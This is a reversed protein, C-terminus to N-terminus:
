IRRGAPSPLKRGHCARGLVEECGEGDARRRGRALDRGPRAARDVEEVGAVLLHGGLHGVHDARDVHQEAVELVGDLRLVLLLGPLAEDVDALCCVEALGLEPGADVGEVARPHEVVQRRQHGRDAVLEVHDHHRLHLAGLVDVVDVPQEGLELRLGTEVPRDQHVRDELGRAAHGVSSIQAALGRM